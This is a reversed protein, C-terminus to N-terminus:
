NAVRPPPPAVPASESRSPESREQVPESREVPAPEQYVARPEPAPIDEAPSVPITTQPPSSKVEVPNALKQKKAEEAIAKGRKQWYPTPSIGKVTDIALQWKGDKGAKEAKQILAKNKKTDEEWQALFSDAKPRIRSSVPIAQLIIKAETLNGANEYKDKALAILKEVDDDAKKKEYLRAIAKDTLQTVANAFELNKKANDASKSQMYLYTGIVGGVAVGVVLLIALLIRIKSKNSAKSPDKSTKTKRYTPSDPLAAKLKEVKHSYDPVLNLSEPSDLESSLPIPPAPQRSTPNKTIPPQSPIVVSKNFPNDTEIVLIAAEAPLIVQLAKLMQGANVYRFAPNASLAISLIQIFQDSVICRDQWNWTDNQAKLAEPPLGTLLIIIVVGLAYIDATPAAQRTQSVEPALYNPHNTGNSNLLMIQMRSYDYAITDLSIAGHSQKLDHLRMLQTLAQRLFDKAEAESFGKGQKQTLLTRCTAYQTQM